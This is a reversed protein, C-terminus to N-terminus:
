LGNDFGTKLVSEVPLFEGNFGKLSISPFHMNSTSIACRFKSKTKAYNIGGRCVWIRPINDSSKRRGRENTEEAAKICYDCLSFEWFENWHEPFIM